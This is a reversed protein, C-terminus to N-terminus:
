LTGERKRRCYEMILLADATALTVTQRPFLRQAAAKLRNKFATKTEPDKRPPIGLGKQWAQPTVEEYPIGAAVLFGELRGVGKGFNFMASSGAKFGDGSVYGGVKELVAFPAEGRIVEQRFWDWLDYATFSALPRVNIRYGHVSDSLLSPGYLAVGGSAGPDIGIYVANGKPRATRTPRLVRSSLPPM